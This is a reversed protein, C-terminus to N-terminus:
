LITRPRSNALSMDKTAQSLCPNFYVKATKTLHHLSHPTFILTPFDPMTRILFFVGSLHTLHLIPHVSLHNWHHGAIPAMKRSIKLAKLVTLWLNSIWQTRSNPKSDSAQWHKVDCRLSLCCRVVMLESCEPSKGTIDPMGCPETRPGRRYEMNTLLRGAWMHPTMVTRNASSVLKITALQETSSMKGVKVLASVDALLDPGYCATWNTQSQGSWKKSLFCIKWFDFSLMKCVSGSKPPPRIILWCNCLLKALGVQNYAGVSLAFSKWRKLLSGPVSVQYPPWQQMVDFSTM